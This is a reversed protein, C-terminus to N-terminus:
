RRSPASAKSISTLMEFLTRQAVLVQPYAAAMERYRSLYLRYGEEARPLIEWRYAESARLSITRSSRSPERNSRSSWGHSRPRLGQRMRVHRQSVVRSGISCHFVSARKWRARGVSRADPTKVTSATTRVAAACFCIRTRKVDPAFLRRGGVSSSRM